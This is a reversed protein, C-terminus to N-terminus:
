PDSLFHPRVTEQERDGTGQRRNGTEQERDGTEQRRDGTEQRAEAESPVNVIPFEHTISQLPVRNAVRHERRLVINRIM